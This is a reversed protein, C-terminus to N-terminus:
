ELALVANGEGAGAGTRCFRAAPTEVIAALAAARAGRGGTAAATGRDERQEWACTHCLAM